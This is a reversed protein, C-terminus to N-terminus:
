EDPGVVGAKIAAEKERTDTSDSTSPDEGRQIM